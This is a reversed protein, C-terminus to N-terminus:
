KPRLRCRRQSPSSRPGLEDIEVAPLPKAFLFGQAVRCGLRRLSAAQEVTEVGEAVIELNLARALAIVAAAFSQDDEPGGTLEWVLGQDIKVESIPFKRLYAVATFGAGFDDVSIKVGTDSIKGLRRAVIEPDEVLLTETLEVTLQAPDVGGEWALIRSIEKDVDVRALQWVAGTM